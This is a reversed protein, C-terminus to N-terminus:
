LINKKLNLLNEKLVTQEAGATRAERYMEPDNYPSLLVVRAEPYHTKIQKTVVFGNQKKMETDMLVCDPKFKKYAKMVDDGGTCEYIKDYYGHLLDILLHRFQLNDEVILLRKM